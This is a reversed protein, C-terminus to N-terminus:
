RVQSFIKSNREYHGNLGKKAEKVYYKQIKQKLWMTAELYTEESAREEFEKLWDLFMDRENVIEEFSESSPISITDGLRTIPTTIYDKPLGVTSALFDEFTM